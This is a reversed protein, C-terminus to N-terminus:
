KVKSTKRSGKPFKETIRHKCAVQRGQIPLLTKMISKPEVALPTELFVINMQYARGDQTHLKIIKQKLEPDVYYM